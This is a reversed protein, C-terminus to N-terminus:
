FVCVSVYRWRSKSPQVITHGFALYNSLDEVWNGSGGGNSTLTPSRVQNRWCKTLTTPRRGMQTSPLTRYEPPTKKPYLTLPIQFLFASVHSNFTTHTTKAQALPLTAIRKWTLWTLPKYYESVTGIVTHRIEPQSRLIFKLFYLVWSLLIPIACLCESLNNKGLHHQTNKSSSRLLWITRSKKLRFWM